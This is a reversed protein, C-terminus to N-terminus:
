KFTIDKKESQRISFDEIYVLYESFDMNEKKEEIDKSSNINYLKGDVPVLMKPITETCEYKKYLAKIEKVTGELISLSDYESSHADYFYDIKDTKIPLNIENANCVPWKIKSDISFEEGCCCMEWYEYLVICKKM